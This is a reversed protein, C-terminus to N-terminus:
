SPSVTRPTRKTSTLFVLYTLRPWVLKDQPTDPVAQGVIIKRGLVREM